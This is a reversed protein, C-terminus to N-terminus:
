QINSNKSLDSQAKEIVFDTWEDPVRLNDGRGSGMQIHPKVSHGHYDSGGTRVLGFERALQSYQDEQAVSHFSYKVEIGLLGYDALQHVLQRLEDFSEIHILCPHALVPVGGAARILEIGDKLSLRFRDVYAKAGSALYEDFAQQNSQVVGKEVMAKAIHPRAVVNDGAHKKVEDITIDIGAAQLKEIIRDNRWHRGDVINALAEKLPAYDPDPLYALMHLSHERYELSLEVGGLVRLKSDQAAELLSSFGNVTDHDTLAIATLGIRKAQEILEAPTDSGDSYKSHLHLDIM